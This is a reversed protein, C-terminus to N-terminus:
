HAMYVMVKGSARDRAAEFARQFDAFEFHHSVYPAIEEPSITALTDLAVQLEDPYGVASTLRMERILLSELNLPVPKPYVATLVIRSRFKGMGVTQELLVPAGAMDMYVDTGATPQGFLPRDQGHVAILADRLDATSPNITHDAGLARARGLRAESLDVSVIDKVGRRSLWFVAGLGIPGAGYVVVKEGPALEAQNVGHLAVALPEALAALRADLGDPIALLHQGLRADPVMVYDAFAGESGGNGIINDLAGMPNILVRLGVPLDSVDSGAEVVTGAAEHGLPWPKGGERLMGYKAFTLDSGCIGCADIKILVDSPGVRPKSVQDIRIDDVGYINVIKM